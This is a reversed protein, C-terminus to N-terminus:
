ADCTTSGCARMNAIKARLADVGVAGPILEDGIIFTPTGSIKLATALDYSREIADSAKQGNMDIMMAVRNGGVAEAAALAANADVQGRASFLRQHFDWYNLADNEAVLFGIKAAEVSGDSLIPFEKLVVKLNPDEAILTALDPLARRCYSCNYDFMEVLTVDGNPNGLIVNAPDNYIAEHNAQLLAVREAQEAARKAVSLKAAMRDLIAPDDMLYQEILLNLEAPDLAKGSADAALMESVIGRVDSAAIPAPGRNLLSVGLGGALIGVLLVLGFSLRSM